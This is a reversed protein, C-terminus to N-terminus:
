FLWEAALLLLEDDEEEQIRDRLQQAFARAAEAADESSAHALASLVVSIEATVAQFSYVQAVSASPARSPQFLSKM